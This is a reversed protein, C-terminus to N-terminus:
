KKLENLQKMLAELQPLVLELSTNSNTSHRSGSTERDLAILVIEEWVAFQAALSSPLPYENFHTLVTQDLTMVNGVSLTYQSGDERLWLNALFFEKLAEMIVAESVMRTLTFTHQLSFYPNNNSPIYKTSLKASFSAWLTCYGTVWWPHLETFMRTYVPLSVPVLNPFHQLVTSSPGRNMAAYISLLSQLGPLSNHQGSKMLNVCQVWLTYQIWKTSILPYQTFHPVIVSLIEGIKTVRYTATSATTYIKGVGFFVQLLKLTEIHQIDCLVEFAINVGWKGNSQRFHPTIGFRAARDCFGTVWHPSISISSLTSTSFPCSM